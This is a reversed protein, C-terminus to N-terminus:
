SAPWISASTCASTSGWWTRSSVAVPHRYGLVMATDIDAASAVGQELMWDGGHGRCVWAPRRLGPFDKVYICEERDRRFARVRAVVADATTPHSIVELLKMIHVPNFFHLGILREPHHLAGAIAAVSLSSTNTGFVATDEVMPEIEVLLAQKLSFVEPVAEHDTPPM